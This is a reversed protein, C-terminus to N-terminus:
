RLGRPGRSAPPGKPSGWARGPNGPLLLLSTEGSEAREASVDLGVVNQQVLLTLLPELGRPTFARGEPHM